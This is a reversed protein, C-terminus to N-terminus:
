QQRVDVLDRMGGLRAVRVVLSYLLLQPVSVVRHHTETKGGARQNMAAM